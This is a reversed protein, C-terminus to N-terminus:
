EIEEQFTEILFDLCCKCGKWKKKFNIIMKSHHACYDKDEGSSYAKRNCRTYKNNIHKCFGPIWQESNSEMKIHTNCLGNEEVAKHKCKTRNITEHYCISM